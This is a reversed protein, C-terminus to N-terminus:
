RGTWVPATWATLGPEGAANSDTTVRLYYYHSSGSELSIEWDFVTSDGVRSAVVVGGDSVIEVLTIADSATRDPDEIHVSAKYIGTDAELVSGMVEGNLTYSIRLNSDQTAYGRSAKMAGYLADPTLDEALLVTRLETGSIWDASHTDSNAAPMVHWGAELAMLYSMEYDPNEFNELVSVGQDRAATYYDFDYFNSMPSENFGMDYPGYWYTPHNWQGIAGTQSLWDYVSPLITHTSEHLGNNFGHGGPNGRGSEGFIQNTNYINMEGAWPLWLEYGAMAVFDRSTASEAALLSDAWLEPTLSIQGYPYHVHDTVALFDAGAAKAAAYAESPTGVGDSYGTHSHLDGFYLNYVTTKQNGGASSGQLSFPVLMVAIAVTFLAAKGIRNFLM